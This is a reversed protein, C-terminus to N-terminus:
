CDPLTGPKEVSLQVSTGESRAIMALVKKARARIGASGFPLQQEIVLKLERGLEPEEEAIRALVTMSLAKVAIPADGSSLYNFCLTAIKGQLRRPIEVDQFIRVVNRRVAEHVGPEEMRAIMKPFYPRVMAPFREACIGVIWASRQTVRYEGKLFLEMLKRFRRRDNGVWRALREAQRRSHERLIEERLDV